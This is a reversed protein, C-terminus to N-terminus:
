EKHVPVPRADHERCAMVQILLWRQYCHHPRVGYCRFVSKCACEMFFIDYKSTVNLWVPAQVFYDVNQLYKWYMEKYSNQVKIQIEGFTAALSMRSTMLNPCPYTIGDM